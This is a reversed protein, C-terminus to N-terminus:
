SACTTLYKQARGSWRSQLPPHKTTTTRRYILNYPYLLMEEGLREEIKKKYNYYWDRFDKGHLDDTTVDRLLKPPCREIINKALKSLIRDKSECWKRFYYWLYSDDLKLFQELDGPNKIFSILYEDEFLVTEEGQEILKRVREFLKELVCEFASKL